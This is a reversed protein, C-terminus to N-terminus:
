SVYVLETNSLKMIFCVALFPPINNHFGNQGTGTDTTGGVTQNQIYIECNGGCSLETGTGCEYCNRMLGVTESWNHTHSPIEGETLKHAEEGGVDGPNYQALNTNAGVKAAGIPFRGSFNPMVMTQASFGSGITVILGDCIAWGPPILNFGNIWMLITGVPVGDWGGKFNGAPDIYVSFTM